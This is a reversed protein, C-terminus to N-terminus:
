RPGMINQSFYDFLLTPCEHASQRSYQSQVAVGTRWCSLYDSRHHGTLALLLRQRATTARTPPVLALVLLVSNALVVHVASTIEYDYELAYWPVRTAHQWLCVCVCTNLAKSSRESTTMITRKNEGLRLQPHSEACCLHTTSFCCRLACMCADDRGCLLCSSTKGHYM